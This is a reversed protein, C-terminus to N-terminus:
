GNARMRNTFDRLDSAIAEVSTRQQVARKQKSYLTTAVLELQQDTPEGQRHEWRNIVPVVDKKCGCGRFLTPNDKVFADGWGQPKAVAKPQQPPANLEANHFTSGVTHVGMASLVAAENEMARAQVEQCGGINAVTLQVSGFGGNDCVAACDGTQLQCDQDFAGTGSCGIIKVVSGPWNDGLTGMGGFCGITPQTLTVEWYCCTGNKRLVATAQTTQQAQCSGNSWLVDFTITIGCEGTLSTSSSGAVFNGETTDGFFGTFNYFAQTVETAASVGECCGTPPCEGCPYSVYTPEGPAPSESPMEGQCCCDEETPCTAVAEWGVGETYQYACIHDECDCAACLNVCEPEVYATSCVQIDYMNFCIDNGLRFADGVVRQTITQLSASGVTPESGCAFAKINQEAFSFTCGLDGAFSNMIALDDPPGLLASQTAVVEYRHLEENYVAFARDGQELCECDTLLTCTVTPRCAPLAQSPDQGNWYQVITWGSFPGGFSLGLFRAFKGRNQARDEYVSEVIWKESNAVVGQDHPSTVNRPLSCEKTTQRRIRVKSYELATLRYPNEIAVKWCYGSEEDGDDVIEPPFDVAPYASQNWDDIQDFYGTGTWLGDGGDDARMCEQLWVDMKDISRSCTEVEWRTVGPPNDVSTTPTRLYATGTSGGNYLEDANCNTATQYAAFVVDAFLNNPDHVELQEGVVASPDNSQTVEVNWIGSRQYGVPNLVRFRCWPSGGGPGPPGPEGQVIFWGEESQYYCTVVAGGAIATTAPELLHVKVTNPTGNYPTENQIIEAQGEDSGVPIGASTLTMRALEQPHRYLDPSQSLNVIPHQNPKRSQYTTMLEPIAKSCDMKVHMYDTFGNSELQRSAQPAGAITFNYSYADWGSNDSQIQQALADRAADSATDVVGDYYELFFTSVVHENVATIPATPSPNTVKQDDWTENDYHDNLRRHSLVLYESESASVNDETGFILGQPWTTLGAGAEAATQFTIKERSFGVPKEELVARMGISHAIHDIAYAMSRRASFYGPDPQLYAAPIPSGLPNIIPAPQQNIADILQQWTTTSDVWSDESSPVDNQDFAEYLLHYRWDVVPLIWLQRDDISSDVQIPPLIYVSANWRNGGSDMAWLNLPRISRWENSPWEGKGDFNIDWAALMVTQISAQDILFLGRGFRSAGTPFIYENIGVPPLEAVRPRSHVVPEADIIAQVYDDEVAKAFPYEDGKFRTKLYDAVQNEYDMCIPIAINLTESTNGTFYLKSESM